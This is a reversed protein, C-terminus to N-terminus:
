FYYGSITKQMLPPLIGRYLFQIGEKKIQQFALSTNLGYAMQRFILKNIPFTICINIFAAGYGCFFERLDRQEKEIGLINTEKLSGKTELTNIFNM